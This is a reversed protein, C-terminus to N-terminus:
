GVWCEVVAAIDEHQIHFTKGHEDLAKLGDKTFLSVFRFGGRGKIIADSGNLDIDDTLPILKARERVGDPNCHHNLYVTGLEHMRKISDSILQMRSGKRSGPQFGKPKKAEKSM